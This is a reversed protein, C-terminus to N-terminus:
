SCPLSSDEDTQDKDPDFLDKEYTGRYIEKKLGQVDICGKSNRRSIKYGSDYWMEQINGVVKPDEFCALVDGENWGGRILVNKYGYMCACYDGSKRYESDIHLYELPGYRPLEEQSRGRLVGKFDQIKFEVGKDKWYRKNEMINEHLDVFMLEKVYVPYGKDRLRLVNDEFKQKYSPVGDIVRRHYTFGIRCVRDIFPDLKDYNEPKQLGNTLLEPREMETQRMFSAITNSNGDLFPEGGHFNVLIETAGSLFKNRWKIYMPVSIRKRKDTYNSEFREKHFCYHCRLNCDFTVPYCLYIKM